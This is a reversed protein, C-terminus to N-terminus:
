VHRSSAPFNGPKWRQIAYLCQANDHWRCIYTFLHLNGLAFTIEAVRTLFIGRPKKANHALTANPALQNLVDSLGVVAHARSPMSSNSYSGCGDVYM